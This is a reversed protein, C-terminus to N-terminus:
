KPQTSASSITQIDSLLATLADDFNRDHTKQLNAQEVSETVAWLTFNSKRDLIALRFTPLPDSAGKQKNPNTPGSPAFLRLEFLLDADSPDSVLDFRGWKKM